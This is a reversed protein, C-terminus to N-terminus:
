DYTNVTLFFYSSTICLYRMELELLRKAIRKLRKRGKKTILKAIHDQRAKKFRLVTQQALRSRLANNRSILDM